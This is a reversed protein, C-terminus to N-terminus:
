RRMMREYDRIFRQLKSHRDLLGWLHRKHPILHIHRRFCIGALVGLVAAGVAAKTVIAKRDHQWQAKIGKDTLYHCGRGHRLDNAFGEVMNVRDAALLLFWHAFRGESYKFACRRIAGSLGAAPAATGFVRTVDPRENSHLIDEYGPQQPPREWTSISGSGGFRRRMPYTPDNKPDADIAWGKIYSLKAGLKEKLSQGNNDHENM